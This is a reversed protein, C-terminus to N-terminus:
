FHVYYFVRVPREPKGYDETLVLLPCDAEEGDAEGENWDKILVM